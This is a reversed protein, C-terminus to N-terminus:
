QLFPGNEHLACIIFEFGAFVWDALFDEFTQSMVIVELKRQAM